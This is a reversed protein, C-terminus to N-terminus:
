SECAIGDHDRDLRYPDEPLATFDKQSFDSCNYADGARQPICFDPYAATCNGGGQAAAASQAAQQDAARQAAAKDAAAKRAAARDAASKQAAAKDAKTKRAAAADAAAKETAAQRVAAADAATKDPAAKNAAAQDAAAKDAAAKATAAAQGAERDRRSAASEASSSGSAQTISSRSSSDQQNPLVAGLLVLTLVGAGFGQALRWPLAMGPRGLYVLRAARAVARAKSKGSPLEALQRAISAALAPREGRQTALALSLCFRLDVAANAAYRVGVMRGDAAAGFWSEPVGEDHSLADLQAFSWSHTTAPGWLCVRRDTIVLTGAEQATVPEAVRISRRLVAHADAMSSASTFSFGSIGGVLPMPTQSLRILEVRGLVFYIAEGVELDFGPPTPLGGQWNQCAAAMAALHARDGQPSRTQTTM